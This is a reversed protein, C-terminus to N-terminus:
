PGQHGDHVVIKRIDGISNEKKVKEYLQQNSAYWTTEYNTLVHINYQRALDHIREAQKVSTALPKEVMVSIGKPACTEVVELHESVANYALVADPKIRELMSAVNKFFLSDPVNYRKKYREVLQADPEAIGLLIVEGKKYQQMISHAHDHSLGAVGVKLLQGGAAFSWLLLMPLLTFFISITCNM